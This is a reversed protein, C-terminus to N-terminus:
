VHAKRKSAPSRVEAPDDFITHLAELGRVVEARTEPPLNQLRDALYDEADAVMRAYKRRGLATLKLAIRRRDEIGTERAVFRGEVLADVLKSAAPPTLGLFAAVDALMADENRGLFALTRFQPMSLEPSSRTRVQMRIVRMLHPVAELITRACDHPTAAMRSFVDFLTAHFSNPLSLTAPFSLSEAGCRRASLLQSRDSAPPFM